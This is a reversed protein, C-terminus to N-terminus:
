SYFAFDTPRSIGLDSPGLSLWVGEFAESSVAVKQQLHLLLNDSRNIFQLRHRSQLSRSQGSPRADFPLRDM